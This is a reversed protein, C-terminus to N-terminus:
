SVTIAGFIEMGLDKGVWSICYIIEVNSVWETGIGKESGM